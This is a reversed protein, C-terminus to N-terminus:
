QAPTAQAFFCVKNRGSDKAQYMATDARQLVTDVSADKGHYLTVGISPSSHHPHDNLLYPQALTQRIHEAVLGARQLAKDRDSGLDGIQVVFEDGGFRAAIDVERICSGLRNAVEILMLDGTEHGRTDNLIKFNDMDIFLVAGFDDHRTSASLATGLRELFCRRNPLGTLQDHLALALIEEEAEKHKTIDQVMGRSRLPKGSLDFTSTCHERVWKVRGDAFLLRHEIHYPQQDQLSRQYAHNVGDRDYPHIVSLFTEYSPAFRAPDLEFIRYVEESWRLVGSVLDLEWSGLKGLREAEKLLEQNHQFELAAQKRKTIDRCFVLFQRSEALYRASIEVDIEHGDKHRHRTEFRDYGEAVLKALHEKIDEPQEKTELQSIHMTVLEAVSYGSIRAYAENADLLKGHEDIIWFGDMATDVVIKKRRLAADAQKRETIDRSAAYLYDRGAIEIGSCAIEVDFTTGDKRRYRSEILVHKGVLDKFTAQLEEQSFLDDWDTVKLGPKAEGTYGLMRYFSENAEVLNGELDLIHIGDMATNMLAQNRQFMHEVDHLARERERIEMVLLDNLVTLDQTREDVQRELGENIRAIERERRSIESLMANLAKTLCGIEGGDSHPLRVDRAGATIEDAAVALQELPFFTRRLVILVIGCVLLLVTFGAIVHARPIATLRRAMGDALQYTLFLFQAPNDADYHIRGATLYQAASKTALQLPMFKPTRPDLAAALTPFDTRIGKGSAAGFGIDRLSEPRLLYQGHRDTIFASVGPPLNFTTSQLLPRLDLCLVILGFIKGNDDFVPATAEIAPILPQDNKGEERRLDINSLHVRGPAFELAAASYNQEAKSRLRDPPVIEVQGNHNTLHAIERGEDAVSIYSLQYYDPHALLFPSFIQRLREEWQKATNGDRADYGNNGAARMIGAVPPTAALFRANRRLTDIAQTMRLENFHFAEELHARRQSFYVERLHAEEVFMLTLAGLAVLLLASGAIRTSLPLDHLLKM